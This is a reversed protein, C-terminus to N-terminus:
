PDPTDLNQLLRPEIWVANVGYNTLVARTRLEIV